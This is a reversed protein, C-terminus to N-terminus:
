FFVITIRRVMADSSTRFPFGGRRSQIQLPEERQVGEILFGSM